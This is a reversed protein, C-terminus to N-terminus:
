FDFFFRKKGFFFKGIKKELIESLASYHQNMTGRSAQRIKPGSPLGKQQEVSIKAGKAGLLCNQSVRYGRFTNRIYNYWNTRLMQWNTHRVSDQNNLYIAKKRIKSGRPLGKQHEVSIKEEKAGLLCNQRVRYARFTNRFYNYLYTRLM